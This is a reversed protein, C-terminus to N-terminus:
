FYSEGDGPGVTTLGKKKKLNEVLTNSSQTLLKKFSLFNLLRLLFYIKIKQKQYKTRKKLLGM